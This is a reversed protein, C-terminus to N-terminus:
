EEPEPALEFFHEALAEEERAFAADGYALATVRHLTQEQHERLARSLLRLAFQNRSLPGRERDLQDVIEPPFSFSVKRM